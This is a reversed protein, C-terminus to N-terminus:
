FSSGFHAPLSVKYADSIAPATQLVDNKMELVKSQMFEKFKSVLDVLAVLEQGCMYIEADSQKIAEELKSESTKLIDDQEREVVDLNRAEMELDEEKKEAESACRYTYEETEKKLKNPQAEVVNIHSQLTETQNKKGEVEAAINSLQQQLAILEELKVMSNKKIDEAFSALAPKLKSKYDIGMVEAPTSGKANMAFQFGDGFKLRKNAQNSEIALAQLEKFSYGSSSHLDWSKNEWSSTAIEADGIDREVAQLERRMREVDKDNFTQQEVMKKLGVNEESIRERNQEKVELEKEKEKLVKEKRAIKEACIELATRFKVADEELLKTNKELVERRSPEAKMAELKSDHEAANQELEEARKAVNEREQELKEKLERELDEVIEDDGRIYYLYSSSNYGHLPNAIVNTSITGKDEVM